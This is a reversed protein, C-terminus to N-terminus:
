RERWALLKDLENWLHLTPAAALPVRLANRFEPYERHYMFLLGSRTAWCSHVNALRDALKLLIAHDGATRIKPYTATNREHRNKGPESTVAWVLDAVADGFNTRILEIPTKTDEVVDHLWGAALLAWKKDLAWGVTMSDLLVVVKAIHGEVYSEAGYSQGIHAEDAFERARLLRVFALKVEEPATDPPQMMRLKWDELM